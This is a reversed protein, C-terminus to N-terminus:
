RAMKKTVVVIPSAYPSKSPHMVGAEEMETIAKRVAQYQSPPIKRYPLWFHRPDVLPIEHKVVTTHGYDLHHKSFVDSNQKVVDMMQLYQNESEFCANSLDLLSVIDQDPEKHPQDQAPSAQLTHAQSNLSHLPLKIRETGVEEGRESVQEQGAHIVKARQGVYKVPGVKGTGDEAGEMKVLASYWEPHSQQVVSLYQVGFESKLHEQSARIVNTGILLPVSARYSCVPIVFVPVGQYSREM